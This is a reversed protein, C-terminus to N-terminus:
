SPLGQADYGLIDDASRTDPTINNQIAALIRDAAARKQAPTKRQGAQGLKMARYEDLAAIVQKNLSRHNAAADAKLFEQLDEPIDRLTMVAM